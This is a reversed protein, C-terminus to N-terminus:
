TYYFAPQSAPYKVEDPFIQATPIDAEPVFIPGKRLPTTPCVKSEPNLEYPHKDHDLLKLLAKKQFKKPFIFLSRGTYM